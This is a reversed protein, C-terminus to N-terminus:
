AEGAVLLAEAVLGHINAYFVLAGADDRAYMPCPSARIAHLNATDRVPWQWGPHVGPVISASM